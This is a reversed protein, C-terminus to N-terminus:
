AKVTRVDITDDCDVYFRGAMRENGCYLYKFIINEMYAGKIM